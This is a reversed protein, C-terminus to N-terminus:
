WPSRVDTVMTIWGRPGPPLVHKYTNCHCCVSEAPCEVINLQFRFFADSHRWWHTKILPRLGSPGFFGPGRLLVSSYLCSTLSFDFSLYLWRFLESLEPASFGRWYKIVNKHSKFAERGGGRGWSTATTEPPLVRSMWEHKLTVKLVASDHHQWSLIINTPTCVQWVKVRVECCDAKPSVSVM